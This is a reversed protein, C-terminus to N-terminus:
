ADLMNTGFDWLDSIKVSYGILFVTTLNAIVLDNAILKFNLKELQDFTNLVIKNSPHGVDLCNLETSKRYRDSIESSLSWPLCQYNM